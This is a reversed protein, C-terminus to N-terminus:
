MRRVRPARASWAFKVMMSDAADSRVSDPMRNQILLPPDPVLVVTCGVTRTASHCTISTGATRRSSRMVGCPSRNSRFISTSPASRRTNRPSDRNISAMGAVSAITSYQGSRNRSAPSSRDPTAVCSHSCYETQCNRSQFSTFRKFGASSRPKVTALPRAVSKTSERPSAAASAM